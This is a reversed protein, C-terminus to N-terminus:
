VKFVIKNEDFIIIQNFASLNKWEDSLIVLTGDM